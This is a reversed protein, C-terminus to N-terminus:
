SLNEGICKNLQAIYIYVKGEEFDDDQIVINCKSNYTVIM